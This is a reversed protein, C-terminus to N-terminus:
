TTLALQLLLQALEPHVPEYDPEYFTQSTLEAVLGFAIRARLEPHPLGASRMHERLVAITHKRLAAVRQQLRKQDRPDAIFALVTSPYRQSSLVAEQLAPLLAALDSQELAAGIGREAEEVHREALALLLAEKNPFYEYLTGISVGARVAIRNTTAGYGEARFVQAAAELLYSVKDRSRAQLPRRRPVIPRGGRAKQVKKAAM